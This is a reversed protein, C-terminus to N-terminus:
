IYNNLNFHILCYPGAGTNRYFLTPHRLYGCAGHIKNVVINNGNVFVNNGIPRNIRIIFANLLFLAM